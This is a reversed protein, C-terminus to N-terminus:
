PDMARRTLSTRDTEQVGAGRFIFHRDSLVRPGNHPPWSRAGAMIGGLVAFSASLATVWIGAPIEPYLDAFTPNLLAQRRGRLAVAWPLAVASQRAMGVAINFAPVLSYCCAGPALEVRLAPASLGPGSTV